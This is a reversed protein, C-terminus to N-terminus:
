ATMYRIYDLADIWNAGMWDGDDGFHRPEDPEVFWGKFPRFVILAEMLCECANWAAQLRQQKTTRRRAGSRPPHTM